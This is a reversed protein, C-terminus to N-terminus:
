STERWQRSRNAAQSHRSSRYRTSQWASMPDGPRRLCQRRDASQRDDRCRAPEIDPHDAFHQDFVIGEAALRDLTPTAIWENGYCGVYGLPLGSAVIALFKMTLSKVGISSPSGSGGSKPLPVLQCSTGVIQRRNTPALQWSTGSSRNKGAPLALRPTSSGRAPRKPSTFAM